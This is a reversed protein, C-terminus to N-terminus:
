GEPPLRALIQPGSQTGLRSPLIGDGEGADHAVDALTIRSGGSARWEHRAEPSSGREYSRQSLEVRFPGDPRNRRGRTGEPKSTAWASQPVRRRPDGMSETPPPCPPLAILLLGLRRDAAPSVTRAAARAVAITTNTGPVNATVPAPNVVTASDTSPEPWQKLPLGAILQLM